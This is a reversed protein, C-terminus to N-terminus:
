AGDRGETRRLRKGECRRVVWVAEGDVMVVVEWVVVVVWEVM